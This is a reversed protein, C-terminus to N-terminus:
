RFRGQNVATVFKDRLDQTEFTWVRTWRTRVKGTQASYHKFNGFEDHPVLEPNVSTNTVLILNALLM